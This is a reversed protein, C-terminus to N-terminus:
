IRAITFVVRCGCWLSREDLVTGPAVRVCEACIQSRSGVHDGDIVYGENTVIAGQGVPHTHVQAAVVARGALAVEVEHRVAGGDGRRAVDDQGRRALLAVTRFEGAVAAIADGHFPTDGAVARFTCHHIRGCIAAGGLGDFHRDHDVLDM